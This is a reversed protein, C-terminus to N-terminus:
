GGKMGGRKASLMTVQGSRCTQSTLAICPSVQGPLIFLQPFPEHFILCCSLNALQFRTSLLLLSQICGKRELNREANQHRGWPSVAHESSPVVPSKELIFFALYLFLRSNKFVESLPCDFSTAVCVTLISTVICADWFFLKSSRM